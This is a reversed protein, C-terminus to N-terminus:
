TRVLKEAWNLRREDTIRNVSHCVSRDRSRRRTSLALLAVNNGGFITCFDIQATPPDAASGPGRIQYPPPNSSWELIWSGGQGKPRAPGDV